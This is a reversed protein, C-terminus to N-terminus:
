LRAFRAKAIESRRKSVIRGKANRMLDSKKLGGKTMLAEGLWVMERTGFRVGSGMRGGAPKLARARKPKLTPTPCGIRLGRKQLALCDARAGPGSGKLAGLRLGPPRKLDDNRGKGKLRFAGSGKGAGAPILARGALQAITPILPGAEGPLLLAGAASLVAGTLVGLPILGLTKLMDKGVGSGMRGGHAGSGAPALGRGAAAAIRGVGLLATAAPTLLPAALPFGLSALLAAGSLGTLLQSPKFSTRGALFDTAEKGAAKAGKVIAKGINKVGKVAKKATKTAFSGIDDLIGEGEMLDRGRGKKRAAKKGLTTLSTLLAESVFDPLAGSGKKPAHHLRLFQEMSKFDGATLKKTTLGQLLERDKKPIKQQRKGFKIRDGGPLIAVPVAMFKPSTKRGGPGSGELAQGVMYIIGSSVFASSIAPGAIPAGVIAIGTLIKALNKVAKGSLKRIKGSGALKLGRGKLPGLGLLRKHEAM